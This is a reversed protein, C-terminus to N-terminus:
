LESAENTKTEESESVESIKVSLESYEPTSTVEKAELDVEQM